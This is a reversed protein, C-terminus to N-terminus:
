VPIFSSAERSTMSVERILLPITTRDVTIAEDVKEAIMTHDIQCDDKM